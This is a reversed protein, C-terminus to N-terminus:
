EVIGLENELMALEKVIKALESSKTAIERTYVLLNKSNIRETYSLDVDQIGFCDKAGLVLLNIEIRKSQRLEQLEARRGIKVLRDNSSM